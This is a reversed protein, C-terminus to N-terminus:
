CQVRIDAEDDAADFLRGAVQYAMEPTLHITKQPDQRGRAICIMGSMRFVTLAEGNQTPVHRGSADDTM